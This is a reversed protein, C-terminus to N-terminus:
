RWRGNVYKWGRRTKVWRGEVWTRGPKAPKVWYGDRFEYARVPRNYRWGGNVWVYDPGPSQPIVVVPAQPQTTVVAAGCGSLFLASAFLATTIIFHISKM